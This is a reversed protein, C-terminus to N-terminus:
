PLHSSLWFVVDGQFQPLVKSLKNCADLINSDITSLKMPRKAEVFIRATGFNFVVDPLNEQNEWVANIGREELFSCLWLEYQRNRPGVARQETSEIPDSHDKLINNWTNPMAGALCEKFAYPAITELQHFEVLERAVQGLIAKSEERGLGSFAYEAHQILEDLKKLNRVGRADLGNRLTKVSAIL